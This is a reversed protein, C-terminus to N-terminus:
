VAGKQDDSIENEVPKSRPLLFHMTTGEGGVSEAFIRGRHAQIIERCIYLGLGSGRESGSHEPLRYFRKFVDELHEQPIGPGNDRVSIHAMESDWDLSVLVTSGPAYKSANNLLNDFVQVLRAADVWATRASSEIMLQISLGPNRAGLRQVTDEILKDLRVAQFDMRLIGSQLRSSDLLNDILETLRDAEDDIITLFERRTDADWHADERLLSTAYGKIFGLPSRLDHSVTAVFDEQLRTLRRDAELQAIRDVMSQRDLLYAVNEAILEALVIRRSEYDPGGFRIFVLAGRLQGAVELPLGLFGRLRLRDLMRDGTERGVEEKRIVKQGSYLVENAVAEGWAMDAEASRGRGVSRAYSPESTQDSHFQYLVVNDFIFVPRALRIIERLASATDAVQLIVRSIEYVVKMEQATLVDTDVTEIFIM